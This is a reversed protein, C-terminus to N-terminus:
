AAGKERPQPGCGLARSLDGASTAWPCPCPTLTSCTVAPEPQVSCLLTRTMM